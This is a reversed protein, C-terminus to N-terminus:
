KAYKEKFEYIEKQTYFHKAYKLNYIKNLFRKPFPLLKFENSKETLFNGKTNFVNLYKMQANKIGLFKYLAEALNKTTDELRLILLEHKGFKHISYGKAHNFKKTFPNFEILRTLELEFWQDPYEINYNKIFIKQLEKATAHRYDNHYKEVTRFFASVNRSIPERVLTIVKLKYNSKIEKVFKPKQTPFEAIPYDNFIWHGHLHKINHEHLVHSLSTSGVKGM